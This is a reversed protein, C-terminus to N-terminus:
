PCAAAGIGCEDGRWDGSCLAARRGNGDAGAQHNADGRRLRGPADLSDLYRDAGRFVRGSMDMGLKDCCLLIEDYSLAMGQGPSVMTIGQPDIQARDHIDIGAADLGRWSRRINRWCPATM